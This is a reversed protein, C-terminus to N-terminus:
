GRAGVINTWTGFAGAGSVTVTHFSGDSGLVGTAGQRNAQNYFLLAGNGAGAINTWTGFAGAGSVTVTHFSGNSGLVGTAGQRNAQNYFLLAGNGAGVINTWTGFAGAGWVTVTHFSGDSGLVGTAGQGNAQNYFLLAGNSVAQSTLTKHAVAESRASAVATLSLGAILLGLAAFLTLGAFGTHSYRRDRHAAPGRGPLLRGLVHITHMM